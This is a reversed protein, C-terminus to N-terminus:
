FVVGKVQHVNKVNVDRMVLVCALGLVMVCTGAILMLRQTGAYSAIIASREASGVAYSLQVDLSDYITSWDAAVSAPLLQQLKQPLTNTWIAGSISNGLGSGLNGFLNLMALVAAVDNHRCVSMVSVQEGLIMAGGALAMFVQCMATYGVPFSPQRFCILLGQGLMYLPVAGVLLWKYRGSRRILFGVLFLNVGNVVDFISAIYGATAMSVGYVVQLYSTFYSAWCYYSIQYCASLCCAGLVNRDRLLRWPVFPSRAGLREWLAFGVILVFGLVLMAIIHASRWSDESSAAITLPLLFLVFGALLLFVGVVDFEDFFYMFGRGPSTAAEDAKPLNGDRRAKNKGMQMLVIMPAAVAPLVIAWAGFGWRWNDAYITEAAKPGGYATILYPSSTFAFALGRSKMTSVDSTMVDVSFIVGAFGISNFVNAVAYVGFSNCVAMLIMGLTSLAVMCSFGLSRDWMNLVKALPMYVSASCINAVVDIVPILSHSEFASLVFPTLNAALSSRMANTFYILWMCVFVAILSGKSWSMTMGEAIRVGQQADRDAAQKEHHQLPEETTVVPSKSPAADAM